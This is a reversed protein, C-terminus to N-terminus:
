KGHLRNNPPSRPRHPQVRRVKESTMPVRRGKSQQTPSPTSAVAKSGDTQQRDRDTCALMSALGVLTVVLISVNGTPM